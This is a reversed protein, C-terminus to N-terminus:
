VHRLGIHTFNLPQNCEKCNGINGGNEELMVRISERISLEVEKGRAAIKQYKTIENKIEKLRQVDERLSSINKPEKFKINEIKVTEVNKLNKFYLLEEVQKQLITTNRLDIDLSTPKNCLTLQKLNKLSNIHNIDKELTETDRYKLNIINTNLIQLKAISKPLNLRELDNLLEEVSKRQPILINQKLKKLGIIQKIKIINELDTKLNDKIRIKEIQLEMNKKVIEINEIVEGLGDLVDIKRTLIHYKAEGSKVIANNTKTKAKLLEMMRQILISEKGLSLIKAKDQPKVSKGLLFIPEKQNGIHIDIDEVTSIRLENVIMEPVSDSNYESGVLTGDKYLSYKVKQPFDPTTERIREWLIQTGDSITILANAKQETHAIDTDDSENYAISRITSTLVSKGIDNKGTICNLYPCLDYITDTHSMINQLRIQKIYNLNDPIVWDHDLIIETTLIKGEPALNIVRAYDQFYTWPHHSILITQIKLKTAIEGIVKAFLPIHSAELWCDPEDLVIFKRHNLRSLAILRLGASVINAVSGGNGKYIDEPFGGNKASIKLAPLNRYTYLDLAIEKDKKLVDQVFYTLLQNFVGINKQHLSTQLQKLFNLMTPQSVIFKNAEKVQEVIELKELNMSENQGQLINAIKLCEQAESVTLMVTNVNFYDENNQMISGM